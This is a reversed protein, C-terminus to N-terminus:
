KTNIGEVKKSGRFSFECSNKGECKKDFDEKFPAKKLDLTCQENNEYYLEQTADINLRAIGYDVITDMFGDPCDLNM